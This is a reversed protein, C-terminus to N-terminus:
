KTYSYSQIPHHITIDLRAVPSCSQPSRAQLGIHLFGSANEIFVLVINTLQSSKLTMMSKDASHLWAVVIAQVLVAPPKHLTGALQLGLETGPEDSSTKM